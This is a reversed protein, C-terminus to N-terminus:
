SHFFLSHELNLFLIYNSKEIPGTFSLLLAKLISFIIMEVQVRYKGLGILLQSLCSHPCKLYVSEKLFMEEWSGKRLFNSLIHEIFHLCINRFSVISRPFLPSVFFFTWVRIYQSGLFITLMPFLPHFVWHYVDGSFFHSLDCATWDHPLFEKFLQRIWSSSSFYHHHCLEWLYFISFIVASSVDDYTVKILLLYYM